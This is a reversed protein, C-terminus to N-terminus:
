IALTFSSIRVRTKDYMLMDRFAGFLETSKFMLFNQSSYYITTAAFTPIAFPPILNFQLIAM